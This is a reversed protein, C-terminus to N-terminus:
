EKKASEGAGFISTHLRTISGDANTFYMKDFVTFIAIVTVMVLIAVTLWGILKISM